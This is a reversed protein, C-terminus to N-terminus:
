KSITARCVCRLPKAKVTIFHKIKDFLLIDFGPINFLDKPSSYLGHKERYDVIKLCDTISLYPIRALEKFCAANLDLPNGRLYEIDELIIELDRGEEIEFISAQDSLVILLLIAIM